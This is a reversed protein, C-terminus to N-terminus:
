FYTHIDHVIVDKPLSGDCETTALTRLREQEEKYQRVWDLITPDTLVPKECGALLYFLERLNLDEKIDDFVVTKPPRHRYDIIPTNDNCQKVLYTVVEDNIDAKLLEYIKSMMGYNKEYHAYWIHFFNPKAFECCLLLGEMDNHFICECFVEIPKWDINEICYRLCELQGHMAARLAIGETLNPFNHEHAYKLCELHGNGAADIATNPDIFLNNEHAFKLIDVHGETAAGHTTDNPWPCGHTVAYQICELKGNYACTIITRPHWEVGQEHAYQFVNLRGDFAAARTISSNLEAGHEVAWKVIDLHGSMAGYWIVGDLSNGAHFLEKVKEFNGDKAAEQILTNYPENSM